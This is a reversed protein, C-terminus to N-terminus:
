GLFRQLFAMISVLAPLTTTAVLAILPIRWLLVRDYVDRRDYQTYDPGVAAVCADYTLSIRSQNDHPHYLSPNRPDTQSLNLALSWLFDFSFGGLQQARNM